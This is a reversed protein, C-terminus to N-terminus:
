GKGSIMQALIKRLSGPKPKYPRKGSDSGNPWLNDTWGGDERKSEARLIRREIDSYNGPVLLKGHNRLIYGRLAEARRHTADGGDKRGATLGVGVAKFQEDAVWQKHAPTGNRLSQELAQALESTTASLYAPRPGMKQELLTPRGVKTFKKGSRM